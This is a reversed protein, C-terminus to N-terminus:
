RLGECPRRCTKVSLDTSARKRDRFLDESLGIREVQAEPQYKGGVSSM